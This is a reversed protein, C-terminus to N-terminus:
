SAEAPTGRASRLMATVDNWAFLRLAILGALGAVAGGTLCAMLPTVPLLPYFAFVVSGTAVAVLGPRWLVSLYDSFGIYLLRNALYQSLVLFLLGTVGIVACVGEIGYGGAWDLAPYLVALSFLSWYLTWNARGKALFVSGVGAGVAKVITALVLLRIPWIAPGMDVDAFLAVPEALVFLVALAPWYALAVAQVSRLYARRLLDDDNAIASFTPFFVRTIVTSIRVLPMLTLKYAFDYVGAATEGLSVYLVGRALNSNFYNLCRSGTLNLGFSLIQRLAKFSFRPSPLWRAVWAMGFLLVAERAVASYALSMVGYGSALLGFAAIASVVSAGIEAAAMARWRLDRQLRARFLGSVAAFPVLLVLGQLVPEFGVSGERSLLEALGPTLAVVSTAVLGFVLCLWFAASFHDEGAERDKVLASGLGLDCLLALFMVITLGWGFQGMEALTLFRFFVFTTIVQLVFASGTWFVGRVTRTTLSQSESL